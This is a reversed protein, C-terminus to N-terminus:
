SSFITILIYVCDLWVKKGIWLVVQSSGELKYRLQTGTVLCDGWSVSSVDQVSWVDQSSVATHESGLFAPRLSKVFIKRLIVSLYVLGWDWFQLVPQNCM